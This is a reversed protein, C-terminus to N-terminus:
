NEDAEDDNIVRERSRRVHELFEATTGTFVNNQNEIHVPGAAPTEEDLEKAKKHLDILQGSVDTVTKILQGAVEFTRASESDKALKLIDDLTDEAKNLIRHLTERVVALDNTKENSGIPGETIVPKVLVERPERIAPLNDPETGFMEDMQGYSNNEM